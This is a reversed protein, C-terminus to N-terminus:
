ILLQHILFDRFFNYLEPSNDWNHSFRAMDKSWKKSFSRHRSHFRMGDLDILFPGREGILFNLHKMDGHSIKNKELRNLMDIILRVNEHKKSEPITDDLLYDMSTVSPIYETIFYSTSILRGQRKEIFVFPKPTPIQLLGLRIANDWCIRARSKGITVKLSHLVGQNNYRKVVLARSKWDIKSLYCTNGRKLIEGSDMLTDLRETFQEAENFDIFLHRDFVGLYEPKKIVLHRRNTRSFKRVRKKLRMQIYHEVKAAFFEKEKDKFTWGRLEGYIQLINDQFDAGPERYQSALLAVQEIALKRKVPGHFFRMQYADLPYHENNKFLFNDLQLDKQIIGKEHQETLTKLVLTMYVAQSPKNKQELWVHYASKADTIKEMVLAQQGSDTNGYFLPEPGRVNRSNLLVLRDWENKLHRNSASTDTYLKLIVPRGKWSADFVLRREPVSRVLALCDVEEYHTNGNRSTHIIIKKAM